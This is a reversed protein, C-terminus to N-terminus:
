QCTLVIADTIDFEASVAAVSLKPDSSKSINTSINQFKEEWLRTELLNKRAEFGVVTILITTEGPETHIDTSNDLTDVFHGTKLLIDQVKQLVVNRDILHNNANQLSIRVDWEDASVCHTENLLNYGAKCSCFVQKIGAIIRMHCKHQCDKIGGCSTDTTSISSYHHHCVKGHYGEDCICMS